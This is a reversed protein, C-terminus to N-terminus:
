WGVSSVACARVDRRQMSMRIRACDAPFVAARDVSMPRVLSAGVVLVVEPARSDGLGEGAATPVCQVRVGLPCSVVCQVDDLGHMGQAVSDSVVLREDVADRQRALVPADCQGVRHLGTEIQRHDHVPVQVCPQHVVALHFEHEFMLWLVILLCGNGSEETVEEALTPVAGFFLSPKQGHKSMGFTEAAGFNWSALMKDVAATM